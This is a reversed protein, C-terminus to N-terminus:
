ADKTQSLAAVRDSLWDLDADEIGLARLHDATNWLYERNPGRGGVARAIIRAQAELSLRGCYQEHARDVVYVLAEVARGDTLTVALREELYASSVLERERLAALTGLIVEDPLSQAPFAPPLSASM